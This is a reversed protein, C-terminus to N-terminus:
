RAHGVHHEVLGSRERLPLERQSSELREGAGVRAGRMTQPRPARALNPADSRAYSQLSRWVLPPAPTPPRHLASARRTPLPLGCLRRRTGCRCPAIRRPEPLCARRLAVESARGRDPKAALLAPQRHKVKASENRGSAACTTAARCDPPLRTTIRLPSSGRPRARLQRAAPHSCHPLLGTRGFSLCALTRARCSWPATTAITPSPTFSAGTSACACTDIAM